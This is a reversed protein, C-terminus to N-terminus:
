SGLTPLSRGLAHALAAADGKTHAGVVLTSRLEPRELEFPGKIWLRRGKVREVTVDSADLRAMRPRRRRWELPIMLMGAVFIGLGLAVPLITVTWVAFTLIVFAVLFVAWHAVMRLGSKRELYPGAVTLKRDDVTVGITGVFNGKRGLGNTAFPGGRLAVRFTAPPATIPAGVERPTVELIEVM